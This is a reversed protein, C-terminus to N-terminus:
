GEGPGGFVFVGRSRRRDSLLRLIMVSRGGDYDKSCATCHGM